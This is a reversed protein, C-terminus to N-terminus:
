RTKKAPSRVGRQGETLLGKLKELFLATGGRLALDLGAAAFDEQAAEMAKAMESEFIYSTLGEERLGFAAKWMRSVGRAFPRWHFWAVQSETMGFWSHWVRESEIVYEKRNGDSRTQFVGASQMEVLTDQVRRQSYGLERALRSATSPGKAVLYAFVDARINLGFLARCRFVFAAPKSFPVPQSQGRLSVPSRLWGYRRFTKDTEGSEFHLPKDQRWFFPKGSATDKPRCRDALTKWKPTKDHEALFAAVAGAVTASCTEDEKLLTTLRVVNIWKGNQVLWDLVEDFVRPDQRACEWTLLLLPEPDVIRPTMPVTAGMVGVQSWAAWAQDLVTRSLETRFGKLLNNM